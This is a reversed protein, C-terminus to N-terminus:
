RIPLYASATAAAIRDNDQTIVLLRSSREFADAAVELNVAPLETSLRLIGQKRLIDILEPSDTAAWRVVLDAPAPKGDPLWLVLPRSKVNTRITYTLRYPPQTGSVMSTVEVGIDLPRGERDAAIGQMITRLPTLNTIATNEVWAPPPPQETQSDANPGGYRLQTPQLDQLAQGTRPCKFAQCMSGFPCALLRTECLIRETGDRADQWKVKVSQQGPTNVLQYQRCNLGRGSQYRFLIGGKTSPGGRWDTASSCDDELSLSPDSAPLTPKQVVQSLACSLALLGIAYKM